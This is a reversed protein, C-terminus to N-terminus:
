AGSMLETTTKDRRMNDFTIRKGDIFSVGVHLAVAAALAGARRQQAVAVMMMATEHCCSNM